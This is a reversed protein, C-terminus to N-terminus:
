WLYTNISRSRLGMELLKTSAYTPTQVMSLAIAGSARSIEEMIIATTRFLGWESGGYESKATIGLLGLSWM